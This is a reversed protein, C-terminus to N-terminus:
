DDLDFRFYAGEDDHEIVAAGGLHSWGSTGSGPIIHGAFPFPNPGDSGMHQVVVSGESGDDLRGTIREIAVYGRGTAEDGSFVFHLESEGVIGATFSKRMLFAGVWDEHPLPVPDASTVTFRAHLTRTM